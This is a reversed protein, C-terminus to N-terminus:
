IRRVISLHIIFSFVKILQILSMLPGYEGFKPLNQAVNPVNPVLKVSYLQDVCSVNNVYKLSQRQRAVAPSIGKRQPQGQDIHARGVVVSNVNIVSQLCKIDRWVSTWDPSVSVLKCDRPQNQPGTRDLPASVIKCEKCDRQGPDAVQM